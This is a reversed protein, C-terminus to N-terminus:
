THAIEGDALPSVGFFRLFWLASHNLLAIFPRFVDYFLKLPLAVLLSTKLALRISVSKPAMEGLVIHLYTIIGFGIAFALSHIVAESQVGLSRFLPELQRAIFPEGIWGLALSALTIGVQCASLYADLDIIISKATRASLNGTRALPEIQSLRVKVIAFEAAVFFGNLFVFFFILSIQLFQEM